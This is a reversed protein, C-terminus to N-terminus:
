APASQVEAAPMAGLNQKAFQIFSSVLQSHIREKPYVVSMSRNLRPSLPVQVLQGLRIENIVTARSMISFGLGTAVLRKLAEPSGLEMVRQLADPSVGAMLLYHDIVERTGSGPERSINPYRTLSDPTASKLKAMPHSPACTVQLEDECCVDAALAPLHSDGEIFGIDLSREAVRNQVGESNGVFLRPVVTPFRVKFAGLVRPLLYDAITTSAGILLPGGLQGSMEQLRTDLEASVELIREAYELALHGAATLSIRGQGRDFLRTNFHEELQRIQSTVAPQTMFLAEAAKTFSLHTAVAHFVQLRRDAM